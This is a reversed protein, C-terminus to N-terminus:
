VVPTLERHSDYSNLHLDSSGQSRTRVRQFGPKADVSPYEAHFRGPYASARNKDQKVFLQRFSGVCAIINAPQTKTLIRKTYDHDPIRLLYMGVTAEIFSWMWLWSMDSNKEKTAVVAVRVIAVIIILVALSLISMLIMKHRIPLRVNWLLTIPLSIVLIYAQDRLLCPYQIDGICVFYAAAVFGVVCWFWIIWSRDTGGIRRFFILFSTKISWLSSYFLILIACEARELQALRNLIEPTPMLKGADLQFLLYMSDVQTQWTIAQVLLMLWAGIAFADDLWLRRFAYIRALTRALVFLFSLGTAGWLVGPM